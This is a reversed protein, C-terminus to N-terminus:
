YVDAIPSAVHLILYCLLIVIVAVTQGREADSDVADSFQGVELRQSNVERLYAEAAPRLILPPFIVVLELRNGVPHLRELRNEATMDHNTAIMLLMTHKCGSFGEQQHIYHVLDFLIPESAKRKPM